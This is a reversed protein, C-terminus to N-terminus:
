WIAAWADALGPAMHCLAPPSATTPKVGDRYDTASLVADIIAASLADAAATGVATLQAARPEEGELEVDGTALAFVTDGDFLTHSPYVARALGAHATAAVRRTEAADLSANTVICAITTNRPSDHMGLPNRREHDRALEAMDAGPVSPPTIGYQALVSAGHLRGTADLVSGHSNVVALAAVQLEATTVIAQGLGGRVLGAGCWAGVGAGVSGRVAPATAASALAAEGAMEGQATDPAHMGGTSSRGLDFIAAAPVIPVTTGGPVPSGAGTHALVNQVGRATALGYASGGTLVIADAGYSLTGPALIETEHVAPGGGRVDVGAVTGPRPVVVTTGTLASDDAWHGVRVGAIEQLGRGRRLVSHETM